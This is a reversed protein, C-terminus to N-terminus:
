LRPLTIKCYFVTPSKKIYGHQWQRPSNGGEWFEQNLCLWHQVCSMQLCLSFILYWLGYEYGHINMANCKTMQPLIEFVVTAQSESSFSPNSLNWQRTSSTSSLNPRKQNMLLYQSILFERNQEQFMLDHQPKVYWIFGSFPLSGATQNNSKLM